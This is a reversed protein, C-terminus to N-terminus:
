WDLDKSIHLGKTQQHNCQLHSPPPPPHPNPNPNSLAWLKLGLIPDTQNKNSPKESILILSLVEPSDLSRLKSGIHLHLYVM